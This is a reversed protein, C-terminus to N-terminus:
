IVWIINLLTLMGHRMFFLMIGVVSLDSLPKPLVSPGADILDFMCVGMDGCVLM